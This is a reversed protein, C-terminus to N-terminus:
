SKILHFGASDLSTVFQSFIAKQVKYPLKDMKQKKDFSGGGLSVESGRTLIERSSIMYIKVKDEIQVSLQYKYRSLNIETEMPTTLIYGSEPAFHEIIFGNQELFFRMESIAEDQPITYSFHRVMRPPEPCFSFQVSLILLFATLKM